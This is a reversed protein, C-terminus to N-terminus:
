IIGNNLLYELTKASTWAAYTKNADTKQTTNDMVSKIIIPTTNGDNILQCARNVAFSEMELAIAKRDVESITSDFFGEVDIVQNVCAIPGFHIKVNSKRTQDESNIYSEIKNKERQIKKIERSNIAAASTEKRFGIDSLKGKDIEFVKTAVVVDGIQTETPKGGLVGIMILYKPKFRTLLETALIAADVMGTTHQSAFVVKKNQNSKLVGIEIFHKTGDVEQMAEFLPLAKEMEDDELATIIAYDVTENVIEGNKKSSKESSINKPLREIEQKLYEVDGSLLIGLSSLALFLPEFEDINKDSWKYFDIISVFLWARFQDHYIKARDSNPETNIWQFLFYNLVHLFADIKREPSVKLCDQLAANFAEDFDHELFSLRFNESHLYKLFNLRLLSAKLIKLEPHLSRVM